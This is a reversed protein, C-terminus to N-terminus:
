GFLSGDTSCNSVEQIPGEFEPYGLTEFQNTGYEADKGFDHVRSSVNGFELVCQATSPADRELLTSSARTRRAAGHLREVDDLHLQGRELAIDTQFFFHSYQSGRTTPM